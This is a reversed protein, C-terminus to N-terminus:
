KVLCVDDSAGTSDKSTTYSLFTSQWLYLWRTMRIGFGDFRFTDSIHRATLIPSTFTRASRPNVPGKFLSEKSYALLSPLVARRSHAVLHVAPYGKIAPECWRLCAM